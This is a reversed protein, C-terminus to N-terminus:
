VECVVVCCKISSEFVIVCFILFDVVDIIVCSWGFRGFGDFVKYNMVWIKKSIDFCLYVLFWNLLM